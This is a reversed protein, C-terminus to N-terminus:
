FTQLGTANQKLSLHLKNNSASVNFKLSKILVMNTLQMALVEGM